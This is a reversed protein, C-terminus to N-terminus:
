EAKGWPFNFEKDDVVKWYFDPGKNADLAVKTVAVICSCFDDVIILKIEEKKEFKGISIPMHVNWKTTSVILDNEDSVTGSQNAELFGSLIPIKDDYFDKILQAIIGGKQGPTIIYDPNFNKKKLKRWFFKTASHIDSWTVAKLKRSKRNSGITLVVGVVGFVTGLVSVLESVISM